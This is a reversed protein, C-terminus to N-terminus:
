KIITEIFEFMKQNVRKSEELYPAIVNHVHGVEKNDSDIDVFVYKNDKLAMDENLKMSEKRFFDRKCTSLFIPLKFDKIYERPSLLRM